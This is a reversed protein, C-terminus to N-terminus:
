HLPFPHLAPGSPHPSFCLSILCPGHIQEVDVSVKIVSLIGSIPSHMQGFLCFVCVCVYMKVSQDYLEMFTETGTFKSMKTEGKKEKENWRNKIQQKLECMNWTAIIFLSICYFPTNLCHTFQPPISQGNGSKASLLHDMFASLNVSLLVPAKAEM